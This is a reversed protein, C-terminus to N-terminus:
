APRAPTECGSLVPNESIKMPVYLSQREDAIIAEAEELCQCCQPRCDLTAYVDEASGACAHAARRLETERIANCICVYM